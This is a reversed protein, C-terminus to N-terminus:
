PPAVTQTDAQLLPFLTHFPLMLLMILAWAQFHGMEAGGMDESQSLFTMKEQAAM